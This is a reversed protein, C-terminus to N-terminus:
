YNFLGEKEYFPMEFDLEGYSAPAIEAPEFYIYLKGNKIYFAQSDTLYTFGDGKLEINNAQAQSNVEDIIKKKYNSKNYFIDNLTATRNEKVYVNFCKKKQISRSPALEIKQESVISVFDHFNTRTYDTEYSFFGIESGDLGATVERYVTDFCLESNIKSNIFSNYESALNRFQPIKIDVDVTSTNKIDSKTYIEVKGTYENPKDIVPADRKVVLFFLATCIAIIILVFIILKKNMM